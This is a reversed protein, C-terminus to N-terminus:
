TGPPPPPGSNLWHPPPPYRLAPPPPAFQYGSWMPPAHPPPFMFPPPPPGSDQPLHPPPTRMDSPWGRGYGPRPYMSQNQNQNRRNSNGSFPNRGRSPGSGFRSSSESPRQRRAELMKRQGREEDGAAEEGAGAGAGQRAQKSQRKARREEEDDSYDVQHPPPEIDNLWSADSGKVKMLEALFVYNTHDTRRPAIYVDTGPAAGRAAAHAASNFRVCYHPENVPGFVDFVKGLAKAGNDLFLVSDLDVAPTDPLARVIVLRDVISAITGIKTTEQAPLSIALDEIPPLDDLGLEGHVKLPEAKEPKAENEDGSSLEEIDKVSDVDSDSSDSDSDSSDVDRYETVEYEVVGSEASDIIMHRTTEEDERSSSASLPGHACANIINNKLVMESMEAAEEAEDNGMNEISPTETDDSDSDSAGYEAILSLSVNKNNEDLNEM